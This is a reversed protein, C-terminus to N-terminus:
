AKDDIFAGIITQEIRDMIGIIEESPYQKIFDGSDKEFIQVVVGADVREDLKFSLDKNMASMAENLMDVRKKIEEASVEKQEVDQTVIEEMKAHVMEVEPKSTGEASIVPENVSVRTNAATLSQIDM